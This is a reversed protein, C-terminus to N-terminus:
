SIVVINNKYNMNTFAYYHYAYFAYSYYDVDDNLIITNHCVNLSGQCYGGLFAYNYYDGSNNFYTNNVLEGTMYYHYFGYVGYLASNNSITNGNIKVNAAFYCFMGYVYYGATNNTIKNGICEGNTSYYPYMGYLYYDASNSYVENNNAEFTNAYYPRPGYVYLGDNSYTLNGNMQFPKATSGQTRYSYIGYMYNCKINHVKNDNIQIQEATSSNNGYYAYTIYAYNAGNRQNHFDNGNIKYGNCYYNYSWYYYVHAIDNKEWTNNGKSGNRYEVFGYYPGTSNSTSGSYMKNNSFMNDSGHNGSSTNSTTSGSMAIYATTNSTGTYKSVIMECGDFTNNNADNRLLVCKTYNSTGAADIKLNKIALFDMGNLDIVETSSTTTITEGNGNITITNTASAGSAPEFSVSESYPGSAAVVNVTVAGKVGNSKLASALDTFSKFNTGSTASASNITYTGNLQAMALGSVLLLCVSLLLGRYLPSLWKTNHHQKM